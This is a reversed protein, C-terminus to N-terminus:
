AAAKVPEPLATIEADSAQSDPNGLIFDAAKQAQAAAQVMLTKDSRL